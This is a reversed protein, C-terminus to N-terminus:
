ATTAPDTLQADRSRQMAHVARRKLAPVRDAIRMGTRMGMRALTRRLPRHALGNDHMGQLSDRVAAASYERMAAEYRGVSGRLGVDAGCATGLEDCLVRADRLATNAGAGRGPTMTHAADGLVTIRGPEWPELPDSTRVSLAFTASPDSDRILTRLSPHWDYVLERLVLEQLAPGDFTLVDGPLVTSSASIGWSFYDTTNDFLLGPWRELLAADSSGIGREFGGGHQWPFEMVHLIGFSNRKDFIMSMGNRNRGTLLETNAPTIAQKGGIAILGTATQGAQPLYQRRVRSNAGDAGVLLRGTASSGDAFRATVRDDQETFETFQKGFHVVDELGTLLVQRLTMRSVSYDRVVDDTREGSLQAGPVTFLLKLQETCTTYWDYDKATTAVFTDFLRPPLLARLARVGNPSIGVRFGQLGGTRHRDREYVEVPIGANRLGHALALGGTGAGIILVPLTDESM